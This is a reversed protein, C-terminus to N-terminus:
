KNGGFIAALKDGIASVVKDKVVGWKNNTWGIVFSVVSLLAYPTLGYDKPIVSVVVQDLIEAFVFSLAVGRFIVKFALWISESTSGSKTQDDGDILSVLTGLLGMGIIIAFEGVLPGLLYTALTSIGAGAVLATTTPEAM